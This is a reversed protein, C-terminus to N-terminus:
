KSKRPKEKPSLKEALEASVEAFNNVFNLPNKIEHAIGATLLGLSALKEQEILQKQTARLAALAFELERELRGREVHFSDEGNAAYKVRDANHNGSDLSM